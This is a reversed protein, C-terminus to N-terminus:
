TVVRASRLNQIRDESFGISMLVDDTDQGFTPAAKRVGGPTRTFKTPVGIVNMTGLKPHEVEEVMGRARIHPDQMAQHFDNV